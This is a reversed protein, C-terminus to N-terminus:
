LGLTWATWSLFIRRRRYYLDDVEHADVAPHLLLPDLALKAYFQGDYGNSKEEVYCHLGAIGRGDFHDGFEILGTFGYGPRYFNAVLVLFVAVSLWYIVSWGRKRALETKSM